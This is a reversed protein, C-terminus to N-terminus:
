ESNDKVGVVGLAKKESVGFYSLKALETLVSRRVFDSVDEGRSDCVEALLNAQKPQFRVGIVRTRNQM